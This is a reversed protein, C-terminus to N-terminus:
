GRGRPAGLATRRPGSGSCASSGERTGRADGDRRTPTGAEAAAVDPVFRDKEYAACLGGVRSPGGVRPLPGVPRGAEDGVHADARDPRRGSRVLDPRRARPTVILAHIARVERLAHDARPADGQGTRLVGRGRAAGAASRALVPSGTGGGRDRPPPTVVAEDPVDPLARDLAHGMARADAVTVEQGVPPFYRGDWTSPDGDWPGDDGWDLGALVGADELWKLDPPCTGAPMWGHLRALALASQWRGPPLSFEGRTGWVEVGQDEKVGHDETM